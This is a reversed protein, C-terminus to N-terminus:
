SVRELSSEGLLRGLAGVPMPDPKELSDLAAAWSAEVSWPHSLPELRVLPLPMLPDLLREAPVSGTRQFHESLVRRLWQQEQGSLTAPRLFDHHYRKQALTDTTVYSLGGTMGSGFNAGVPGLVVVIGATMYECGHEG